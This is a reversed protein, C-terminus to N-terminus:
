SESPNNPETPGQVECPLGNANDFSFTTSYPSAVTNGARDTANVSITFTRCAPFQSSRAITVSASMNGPALTCPAAAQGGAWSVTCTTAAAYESVAYSLAYSAALKSETQKTVVPRIRDVTWEYTTTQSGVQNSGTVEVFHEGDSLTAYECRGEQSSIAIAPTPAGGDLRCEFAMEEDSSFDFSAGPANTYTTPTSSFIVGAMTSDIQWQFTTPQPQSRGEADTAIVTFLHSGDILTPTTYPSICPQAAGGDLKCTFTADREAEFEFTATKLRMLAAPTSRLMAIPPAVAPPEPAEAQEVAACGGAVAASAFLTCFASFVRPSTSSRALSSLFRM